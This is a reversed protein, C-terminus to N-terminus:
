CWGRRIWFGGLGLFGLVAFEPEPLNVLHGSFLLLREDLFSTRCAQPVLLPRIALLEATV